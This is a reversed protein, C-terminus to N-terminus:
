YVFGTEFMIRAQNMATGSMGFAKEQTANITQVYSLEGRVFFQQYQYTPTVTVSWAASGPGYLLNPSNLNGKGSSSIYEFRTPLIISKVSDKFLRYNTLIAAGSTQASTL